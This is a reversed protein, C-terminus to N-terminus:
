WSEFYRKLLKWCGSPNTCWNPTSHTGSSHCRGHQGPRDGCGAGPPPQGQEQHHEEQTHKDKQQQQEKHYNDDEDNDNTTTGHSHKKSGSGSSPGWTKTVGQPDSDIEGKLHEIAALVQAEHAIEEPTPACLALSILLFATTLYGFIPAMVLSASEKLVISNLLSHILKPFLVGDFRPYCQIHSAVRRQDPISLPRRKLRHLSQWAPSTKWCYRTPSSTIQAM